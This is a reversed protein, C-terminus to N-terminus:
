VVLAYKQGYTWDNGEIALAENSILPTSLERIMEGFTSMKELGRREILKGCSLAVKAKTFM